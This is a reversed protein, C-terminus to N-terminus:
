NNGITGKAPFSEMARKVLNRNQKYGIADGHWKMMHRELDAQIWGPDLEPNPMGNEAIARHCEREFKEPDVKPKPGRKRVGAPSANEAGTFEAKEVANVPPNDSGSAQTHTELSPTAGIEGSRASLACELSPGDVVVHRVVRTPNISSVREAFEIPFGSPAANSLDAGPLSRAPKGIPVLHRVWQASDDDMGFSAVADGRWTLTHNDLDPSPPARFWALNIRLPEDRGPLEGRIEVAGDRVQALLWRWAAKAQGESLRDYDDGAIRSLAQKLSFSLLSM